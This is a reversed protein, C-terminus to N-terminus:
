FQTVNPLQGNDHSSNNLTGAVFHCDLFITYIFNIVSILTGTNNVRVKIICCEPCGDVFYSNKFRNDHRLQTYKNRERTYECKYVFLLQLFM